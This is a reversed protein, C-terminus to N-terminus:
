LEGLKKHKPTKSRQVKPCVDYGKKFTWGNQLAIERSAAWAKCGKVDCYVRDPLLGIGGSIM